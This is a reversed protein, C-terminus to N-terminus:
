EMEKKLKEITLYSLKVQEGEPTKFLIGSSNKNARFFCCDWFGVFQLEDLNYKKNKM